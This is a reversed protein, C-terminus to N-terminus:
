GDNRPRASGEFFRGEDRRRVHSPKRRHGVTAASLKDFMVASGAPSASWGSTNSVAMGLDAGTAYADQNAGLFVFAWGAKRRDNILGHVRAASFERSANELGDTIIVVVVDEDGKSRDLRGIMTGIADYLPTCGRPQYKGPDLCHVSRLDARDVLLEFPDRDDFQALTITADGQEAKQDSLFTNFGGVIDGAISSMSGSRDLVVAIHVPASRIPNSIENARRPRM